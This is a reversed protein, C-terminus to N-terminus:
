TGLKGEVFMQLAPPEFYHLPYTGADFDDTTRQAGDEPPTEDLEDSGVKWKQNRMVYKAQKEVRPEYYWSPPGAAPALKCLLANVRDKIRPNKTPHICIFGKDRMLRASSHASRKGGYVNYEGSADDVILTNQGTYRRRILEVALQTAEGHAEVIDTLVWVRPKGEHVRYIWAKNPAKGLNYDVGAIYQFPRNVNVKTRATALTIDRGLIDPRLHPVADFERRAVYIEYEEPWEAMLEQSVLRDTIERKMREFAETPIFINSYSDFHVIKTERDGEAILDRLKEHRVKYENAKPTGCTWLTPKGGRERLSPWIVGIAHTSGSEQEEDIFCYTGGWSRLSEPNDYSRFRLVPGSAFVLKRESRRVGALGPKLWHPPVQKLIKDWIMGTLDYTPSVVQGHDGPRECIFRLLRLVGAESKGGGRGGNAELRMADAVVVEFQSETCPFVWVNEPAAPGLWRKKRRHWRGGYIPSRLSTPYTGNPGPGGPGPRYVRFCCAIETVYRSPDLRQLAIDLRRRLGIPM